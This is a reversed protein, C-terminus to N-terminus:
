RTIASFRGNEFLNLGGGYTGIWLQGSRDELFARVDNTSLGDKTTYRTFRGDRFRNMGRDTGIWLNGSRDEYLSRVYRTAIGAKASFDEFKGDKFRHLSSELNNGPEKGLWLQGSRDEYITKIKGSPYGPIAYATVGDDDIRCFGDGSSAWISGDQSECVSWCDEGPLGDLGSYTIIPRRQIRVLGGLGTGVWLNEERDEIFCNVYDGALGPPADFKLFKGHAFRYLGDNRKFNVWLDGARTEFIHYLPFATEPSGPEKERFFSTIRNDLLYHLGVSNGFWLKGSADQFISKIIGGAPDSLRTIVKVKGTAPDLQRLGTEVQFWVNSARDEFILDVAARTTESLNTYNRFSGNEFRTIGRGTGIWVGGAHSASLSWIRNHALGERVSFRRFAGKEWRLLGNDTGIWVHGDTDEALALCNDSVMAPINAVTFSTFKVGDFRALGFRTGVWLYGDRTQLLRQVNNQPLGQETKWADSRYPRHSKPAEFGFVLGTALWCCGCFALLRFNM